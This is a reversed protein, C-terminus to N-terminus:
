SIPPTQLLDGGAIEQRQDGAMIGMVEQAVLRWDSLSDPRYSSVAAHAAMTRATQKTAATAAPHSAALTLLNAARQLDNRVTALRAAGVFVDLAIPALGHKIALRLAEQFYTGAQDPRAEDSLLHVHGLANYAAAMETEVGLDTWLALAEQLLQKGQSYAGQDVAMKGLGALCQGRLTFSGGAPISQLCRQYYHEAQADDGSLHYATALLPLVRVVWGQYGSAQLSTLGEQLLHLAHAYEGRAIALRVLDRQVTTISPLSGITTAVAMTQALWNQAQDLDGQWIAVDALKQLFGGRLKQAEIQTSLALGEEALRKTEALHGVNKAVICLLEMCAARGWDDQLHTFLAMSEQGLQRAGEQKWQSSRMWGFYLLVFALKRPAGGGVRRLLEVGEEMYAPGHTHDGSRHCLYGQGARLFGALAVQDDPMDALPTHGILADFARQFAYEAARFTGRSDSFVWLGEAAADLARFDRHVSAYEWAARVNDLNATIEAFAEQHRSGKFHPTQQQMLALYYTSHNAHTQADEESVLQLQDEGFQRILEHLQYQGNTTARLLAKEVFLALLPLSAGAVATAAEVHFGGRFVSLRRFVAQQQDDLLQWSQELVARMSRHRTPVNSHRAVLIDMSREIEDAIQACSLLRLWSAALEIALPMGDLLRCIRAIEERQTEPDFTVQARRATQVFLQVADSDAFDPQTFEEGVQRGPLRMGALPHFWEEQLKLAERSTVLLKIRPAAAIMESILDADALLHEFNDLLLLMQKAHLFDFLQQQPPVDGHFQVGLADAVALIMHNGGEVPQLSVFVVGDPFLPPQTNALARAAEIALRTKGIGGPGVLTLLHCDPDQLRRLLEDLEQRRGVFPTTQVPLSGSVPRSPPAAQGVPAATQESVLGDPPFRRTRIANYLATTEDDPPADLEQTLIRVCEEYQRLAAGTHGALAYLQMLRRHSSEELPDLALARRAYHLAEPWNGQAQYTSVVQELLLAFARRLEDRQFFQWDDFEPCDPLTFGAMFDATYLAAAELARQLTEDDLTKVSPDSPRCRWFAEIDVWLSLDPQLGIREASLEFIPEDLLQGLEYLTRRLNARATQQDKEPWFLTALTDRSHAQRTVALFALMAFAKRLNFDLPQGDRELRPTGFLYLHLSM